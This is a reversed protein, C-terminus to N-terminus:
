GPGLLRDSLCGKGGSFDGHLHKGHWVRESDTTWILDCHVTVLGPMTASLGIAGRETKLKMMMLTIRSRMMLLLKIKMVSARKLGHQCSQIHCTKTQSGFRSANGTFPIMKKQPPTHPPPKPPSPTFLESTFTEQIGGLAPGCVLWKTEESFSSLRARSPGPTRSHSLSEPM